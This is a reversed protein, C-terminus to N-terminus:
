RTLRVPVPSIGAGSIPVGPNSPDCGAVNLVVVSIDGAVVSQIGLQLFGVIPLQATGDCAGIAPCNFVPVTVVSDSRSISSALRLSSNPNNSGGAITVPLAGTTFTDQGQAPGPANAHILCQTGPDTRAILNGISRTDVQIPQGPGIIQGCTFHATGRCAINDHYYLGPPGTGIQNCSVASSSPCSVPAPPDIAYFAVIQPTPIEQPTSASTPDISSAILHLTIPQGILGSNSVAYNSAVFKRALCPPRDCNFVLWPKVGTVDITPSPSSGPNFSPNYAEAKATATVTSGSYGWIRAFFTPLGTRTVTVTVQPNEVETFNCSTVVSTPATGGIKFKAAIAQARMDADGSSGNCVSSQPVILPASTFSSSSFAEAGALAAADAAQQAQGSAVYLTVIDIALVAMALLSVMAVAVIFITVGREGKRSSKHQARSIRNTTKASSSTM